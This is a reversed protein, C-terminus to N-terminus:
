RSNFKSILNQLKQEPEKILLQDLKDPTCTLQNDLHDLSKELQGPARLPSKIRQQLKHWLREVQHPETTYYGVPLTLGAFGLSPDLKAHYQILAIGHQGPFVMMELHSESRGEEFVRLRNETRNGFVNKVQKLAQFEDFEIQFALNLSSNREETDLEKNMQGLFSELALSAGFLGQTAGLWIGHHCRKHSPLREAWKLLVDRNSAAYVPGIMIHQQTSHGYVTKGKLQDRLLCGLDLSGDSTIYNRIVEDNALNYYDDLSTNAEEHQREHLWSVAKAKLGSSEILRKHESDYDMLRADLRVGKFPDSHAYIDLSVQQKPGSSGASARNIRYLRARPSRLARQSKIDPLCAQFRNFQDAILDTFDTRNVLRPLEPLGKQVNANCKPQIHGTCLDIFTFNRHNQVDEISIGEDSAGERRQTNLQATTSIDGEDNYRVLGTDIMEHVLVQREHDELGFFNGLECPSVTEIQAVLLLASELVASLVAKETVDIDLDVKQAPALLTISHLLREYGEPLDVAEKAKDGLRLTTKCM